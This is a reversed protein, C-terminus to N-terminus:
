RVNDSFIGYTDYTRHCRPFVVNVVARPRQTTQCRIVLLVGVTASWDPTRLHLRNKITPSIKTIFVHFAHWLRPKVTTSLCVRCRAQPMFATYCICERDTRFFDVVTRRSTAATTCYVWDFLVWVIMNDTVRPSSNMVHELRFKTVANLISYM